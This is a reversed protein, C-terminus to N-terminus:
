LQKLQNAGERAVVGLKQRGVDSSPASMLSTTEDLRAFFYIIMAARNSSSPKKEKQAPGGPWRFVFECFRPSILSIYIYINKAHGSHGDAHHGRLTM